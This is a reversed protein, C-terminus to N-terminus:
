HGVLDLWAAVLDVPGRQTVIIIMKNPMHEYEGSIIELLPISALICVGINNHGATAM